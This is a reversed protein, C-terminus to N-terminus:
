HKTRDAHVHEECVAFKLGCVSESCLLLADLSTFHFFSIILYCLLNM